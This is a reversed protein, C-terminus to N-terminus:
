ISFEMCSNPVVQMSGSVHVPWRGSGLGYGMCGVWRCACVWQQKNCSEMMCLGDFQMVKQQMARGACVVHMYEVSITAHVYEYNM